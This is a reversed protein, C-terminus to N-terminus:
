INNGVELVGAAGLEKLRDKDVKGIHNISVRLRTIREDLHTINEYRGLAALINRPLESLEEATEVERGPTKLDFKSIM